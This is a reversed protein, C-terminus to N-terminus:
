PRIGVGPRAPYPRADGAHQSGVFGESAGGLEGLQHAVLLQLRALEHLEVETSDLREIWPKVREARRHGLLSEYLRVSVFRQLPREGSNRDCDLVIQGHVVVRAFPIVRFGHSGERVGPPDEPPEAAATADPM